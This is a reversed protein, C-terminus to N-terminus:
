PPRLAIDQRQVLPGIGGAIQPTGSLPRPAAADQTWGRVGKVTDGAPKLGAAKFQAILWAVTLTEGRTAPARGAYADSSALTRIDASIRVPSFAPDPAALAIAPTALTLACFLPV